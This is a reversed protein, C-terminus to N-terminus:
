YDQKEMALNAISLLQDFKQDLFQQVGTQVLEDATSRVDQSPFVPKSIGTALSTSPTILCILFSLAIAYGQNTM